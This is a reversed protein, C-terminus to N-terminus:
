QPPPFTQVPQGGHHQVPPIFQQMQTGPHPGQNMSQTPMGQMGSQSMLQPQMGGHGPMQHSHFQHSSQLHPQHMQGGHPPMMVYQPQMNHSHTQLSYTVSTPVSSQAMSMPQGSGTQSQQQQQSLQQLQHAHQTNYAAYPMQQMTQPSTQNHPSPQLPPHAQLSQPYGPPPQPTGSSPPHQGPNIPQQNSNTHVPSPAPHHAHHGAVSPPQNHQSTQPGSSMGMHSMHNPHTMHPGMHAPMPGPQPPTMMSYVQNAQLSPNSQDLNGPHSSPPMGPINSSPPVPFRQGTQQAPPMTMMQYGPIPMYQIYSPQTQALLPQGTAAQVASATYDTKASVVVRKPRVNYIPQQSTAINQMLQQPPVIYSHNPGPFVPQPHPPINMMPATQIVPSQTQPHPSTAMQQMFQQQQQQQQQQQKQKPVFDEALPNLASKQILRPPESSSDRASDHSLKDTVSSTKEESKDQVGSDESKDSSLMERDDSNNNDKNDVSSGKDKEKPDKNDDLRFKSSFEKLEKIEKDRGKLSMKGDKFSPNHDHKTDGTTVPDQTPSTPVTPGATSVPVSPCVSSDGNVSTAEASSPHPHNSTPSQPHNNSLSRGISQQQQQRSYSDRSPKAMGQSGQGRKNPPIYRNAAGGSAPGQSSAAESPRVVSSFLAEEDGGEGNELAINRKYTDTGEIEAALRMAKEEKRRYDESDSKELKTTYQALSEDYSSKVNFQTANTHFMDNVDWGNSSKGSDELLGTEIGGEPDWPQLERLEKDKVEGNYKSIGTDTFADKVAYELDVNVASITVVDSAKVILQDVIRERSPTSSVSNTNNSNSDEIMHAFELVADGKSSLTKLIGEYVTGNKVQVQVNAGVLTFVVHTYRTNQYMGDISVTKEIPPRQQRIRDQSQYVPRKDRQNQQMRGGRSRKQSNPNMM